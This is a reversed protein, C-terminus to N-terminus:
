LAAASRFNPWLPIIFITPPSKQPPSNIFCVILDMTGQKSQVKVGLKLLFKSNFRCFELKRDLGTTLKTCSDEIAARLTLEKPKLLTNYRQLVKEFLFASYKVDLVPSFERNKM